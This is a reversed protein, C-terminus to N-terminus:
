CFRWIISLWKMWRLLPALGLERWVFTPLRQITNKTEFECLGLLGHRRWKNSRRRSFFRGPSPYQSQQYYFVISIGGVRGLLSSALARPPLPSPM